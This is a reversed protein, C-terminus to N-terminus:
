GVTREEAVLFPLVPLHLDHRLLCLRHSENVPQEHLPLRGVGNCLIQRIFADGRGCPLLCSPVPRNLVDGGVLFVFAIGAQLLTVSHIEKGLFALRVLPFHRLIIHLAAMVGDDLSRLPLEHLRLYLPPLVRPPAMVAAARERCLQFASVAPFVEAGLDLMGVAFVFPRYPLTIGLEFALAPAGRGM